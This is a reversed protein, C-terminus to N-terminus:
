AMGLKVRYPRLLAEVGLPMEFAQKDTIAERNKFAHGLLLLMGWLAAKPVSDYGVSFDITVANASGDTAPWSDTPKLVPILGSEDVEFDGTGLTQEVGDEDRYTIEEIDRFPVIPLEIEDDFATMVIRYTKVGFARGTFNEAAERAGPIGVQELWVDFASEPPSGETDIALHAWALELSIPEDTVDTLITPTM